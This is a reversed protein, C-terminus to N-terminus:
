CGCGLRWRPTWAPGCTRRPGALRKRGSRRHRDRRLVVLGEPTLRRARVLADGVVVLDVLGLLEALEVFVQEPSSVRLGRLTVVPTTPAVVHNRIGDRRRRDAPRLVSVHEDPLTPLPVGYM